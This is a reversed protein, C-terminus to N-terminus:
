AANHEAGPIVRLQAVPTGAAGPDNTVFEGGRGDGSLQLGRIGTASGLLFNAPVSSMAIFVADVVGDDDGSDPVGDPGDNDFRAFDIDADAKRL